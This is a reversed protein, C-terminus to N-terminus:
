DSAPGPPRMSREGGPSLLREVSILTTRVSEEPRGNPEHAMLMPPATLLRQIRIPARPDCAGQEMM